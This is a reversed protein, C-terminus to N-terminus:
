SAPGVPKPSARAALAAPNSAITHAGPPSEAGARRIRDLGVRMVRELEGPQM